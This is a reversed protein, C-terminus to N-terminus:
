REELMLAVMGALVMGPIVKVMPGLPDLWLDPAAILSGLLYLVSLGIMALAAARSWPRWLIALGLVIDALAGGFVTPGVTWAPITRGELVAMARLPDILTILGSASWFLALTAIALPLMVYLRAFLREQRTAPLTALTAALPRCPRGGSAQWAAPDGRIGDSLARLATSRLPSRWGLHGLLDAAKGALALAAGPLHPRFRPPPVGQWRRVSDVLDAFSQAGPETLDAILGSRLEGRAAAVVAAALDDIHVTQVRADPLVRPLILPLAAVARLLATGGYAEPSLVLTPRLIVWNRARGALIADGRAKSRFFATSAGPGVGAASIQVIRLPLDNAAEVLRAVTTVHIAELDDRAGDQLAGSANVVVDADALLARWEATEIVPIDRIVWAADPASALAARKSRGIGTVTFGAEALARMCAAGILGYGGLIIAKRM